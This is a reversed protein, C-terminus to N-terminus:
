AEVVDSGRHTRRRALRGRQSEIFAEFMASLRAPLRGATELAVITNEFTAPAPDNAIADVEKEADAIAAELNVM